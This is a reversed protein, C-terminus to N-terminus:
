ESGGVWDNEGVKTLRVKRPPPEPLAIDNNINNEITVPTPQVTVDAPQVTIDNKNEITVPTPSVNIQPTPMDAYFQIKTPEPVPIEPQNNQINVTLAMPERRQIPMDVSKLDSEALDLAKHLSDLVELDISRVPQPGSPPGEDSGPPGLSGPGLQPPASAAIKQGEGNPLPALKWFRKRREDIFMLDSTAQSEQINLDRNDMRIDDFRAEQEERYFRRLIQSTIGEGYLQYLPWLTLNNYNSQSVIANAETANKDMLGPFVGYIQYIEEKSAIRGMNFDMDKANWGLMQATMSYANVVATKRNAAAYSSTLEDRVAQVDAPDLPTKVDGSSLNIIASPMTNDEGFFKGNWRAMATDADAPLMAATLPSLGRYIDFPNPYRFMCIYDSGIRFERGNVTYTYYEIFDGDPDNGPWPQVENAPLPWIEQLWRGSEDPLLFWYSEGKLDLWMHTYLWLFSRSIVPNPRRLIKLLQHSHIPTGTTDLGEPNHVISLKGASVDMSKRQIATYVWSNIMARKTAADQMGIDGGNWRSYDAAATLMSPRKIRSALQYGKVISGAAGGLREFFNSM